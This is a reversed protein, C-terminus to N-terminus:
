FDSLIRPLLAMDDFVMEAGAARLCEHHGDRIHSGGAFGIVCMGAAVAGTVGPISDEIVVCDGPRTGMERAAYLFLDPSPKGRDVMEASFLADDSFHRDLETVRLSRRIGKLSTSSAVCRAGSLQHLAADAGPVETLEPELVANVNDHIRAAFDTPLVQRFEAEILTMMSATNLGVYRDVAQDASMEIGLDKLTASVAKAALVESDVLVGDCDFITLRVTM